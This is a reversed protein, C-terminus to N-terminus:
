FLPADNEHDRCEARISAESLEFTHWGHRKERNATSMRDRRGRLYRACAIDADAYAWHTGGFGGLGERIEPHPVYHHNGVTWQVHPGPRVIVPKVHHPVPNGHRRQEFAPRTPDLPGESVHRYVQYMTAWLLNGDQQHALYERTEVLPYGLPVILEDADLAMLWDCEETAVRSNFAAIKFDDDLLGGPFELNVIETNPYRAIIERSDDTTDSGLVIKVKDAFAYHSLFYPALAAENHWCTLVHIKVAPGRQHHGRDGNRSGAM